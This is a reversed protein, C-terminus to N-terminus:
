KKESSKGDDDESNDSGSNELIARRESCVECNDSEELGPIIVMVHTTYLSVAWVWSFAITLVLAGQLLLTPLSLMMMKRLAFLNGIYSVSGTVMCIYGLFLFVCGAQRGDDSQNFAVVGIGNALLGNKLWSLFGTEYSKRLLLADAKELDTYQHRQPEPDRNKGWQGKEKQRLRVPGHLKRLSAGCFPPRILKVVRAFHSFTQPLQRRVFLTLFAM